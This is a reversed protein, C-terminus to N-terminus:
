SRAVYVAYRVTDELTNYIPFDGLNNVKFALEFNKVISETGPFGPEIGLALKKKGTQNILRGRWEGLEGYTQLAYPKGDKRPMSKSECALWFIICGPLNDQLSASRELYHREWHTQGLYADTEDEYFYDRLPHEEAYRCPVAVYSQPDHKLILECAQRQWDGGGMGPGALFYLPSNVPVEIKRWPRLIKM